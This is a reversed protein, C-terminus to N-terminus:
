ELMLHIVPRSERFHNSYISPLDATHYGFLLRCLMTTDVDLDFNSGGVVCAKGQKIQYVTDLVKIIFEQGKNQAAYLNLLFETDIIRAIASLGFKPAYNDARNEQVILKFDTRNKTCYLRNTPVKTLSTM